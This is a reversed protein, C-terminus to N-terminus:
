TGPEFDNRLWTQVYVNEGKKNTMKVASIPAHMKLCKEPSERRKLNRISLYENENTSAIKTSLERLFDVM